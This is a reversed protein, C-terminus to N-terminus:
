PTGGRLHPSVVRASGAAPRSGGAPAAPGERRPGPRALDGAEPGPLGHRRRGAGRRRAAPRQLQLVHLLRLGGGLPRLAPRGPRPCRCRGGRPWSTPRSASRASWTAPGPRAPRPARGARHRPPRRLPQAPGPREHGRRRRRLEEPREAERLPGPHAPRRRQGGARPGARPDGRGPLGEPGAEGRGRVRRPAPPTRTRTSSRGARRRRRPPPAPHGTRALDRPWRAAGARHRRPLPARTTIQSGIHCAVGRVDLAPDRAALATSGAPTRWRSASSPSRAPRHRHVPPDEPRRRPEGPARRPRARGLRRAVVSVRALEPAARWTSASRGAAVLAFAIEEDAQRRRQLGGQAPRRRGQPGPLARRGLRHRLRRGLRAFLDLIALNANAKVAYCVLHDLGSLSRDLVKWHRRLTATSYVYLPTGYARPWGTSRSRRPTFRGPRRQFHNM